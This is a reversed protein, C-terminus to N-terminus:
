ELVKILSVAIVAMSKPKITDQKVLSKFDVKRSGVFICMEVEFSSTSRVQSVSLEDKLWHIWSLEYFTAIHSLKIYVHKDL